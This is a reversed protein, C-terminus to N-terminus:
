ITDTSMEQSVTEIIIVNKLLSNKPNKPTEMKKKIKNIKKNNM